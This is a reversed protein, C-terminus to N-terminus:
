DLREGSLVSARKHARTRRSFGSYTAVQLHLGMGLPDPLTDFILHCFQLQHIPRTRVSDRIPPAAAPAPESMSLASMRSVASSQATEPAVDRCVFLASRSIRHWRLSGFRAFRM